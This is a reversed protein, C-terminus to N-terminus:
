VLFALTYLPKDLDVLMVKKSALRIEDNVRRLKHEARGAWLQTGRERSEVILFNSGVMVDEPTNEDPALLEINTIMRRLRSPPSQAHRKGTHFQRVRTAIRARNDFIISMQKTPDINNAQAPVWYLADDTWLAEWADYENEDALRAERYLFQEADSLTITSTAQATAM